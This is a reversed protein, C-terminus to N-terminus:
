ESAELTEKQGEIDKIEASLTSIRKASSAIAALRGVQIVLGAVLVALALYMMWRTLQSKEARSRRLARPARERTRSYGPNDFVREASRQEPRRSPAKRDFDSWWDDAGAGYGSNPVSIPM